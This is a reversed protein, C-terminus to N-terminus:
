GDVFSPQESDDLLHNALALLYCMPAPAVPLPSPVPAMLVRVSSTLSFMTRVFRSLAWCEPTLPSSRLNMWISCAKSLEALRLDASEEAASSALQASADGAPWAKLMGLLYREAPTLVLTALPEKFHHLGLMRWCHRCRRRTWCWRCASRRRSGLWPTVSSTRGLTVHFFFRLATSALNMRAYAARLSALHLQYRRLDEQEARDSPLGLVATFQRIQSVYDRQTHEGFRRITIDGTM